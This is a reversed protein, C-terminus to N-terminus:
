RVVSFSAARRALNGARDRVRVEWRHNGEAIPVVPSAVVMRSVPMWAAPLPRGDLEIEVGAAALGSGDERVSARLSRLPGMRRDGASPDLAYIWPESRDELVIWEGMADGIAVLASGTWTGGLFTWPSEPGRRTYIGLRKAEEASGPAITPRISIRFPGDMELEEPGMRHVASRLLLIESQESSSQPL